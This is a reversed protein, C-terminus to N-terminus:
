SAPAANQPPCHSALALLSYVQKGTAAALKLLAKGSGAPQSLM